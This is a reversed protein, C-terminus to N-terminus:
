TNFHIGTPSFYQLIGPAFFRRWYMSRLCNNYINKLSYGRRYAHHVLQPGVLQGGELGGEVHEVLVRVPGDGGLDPVTSYIVGLPAFDQRRKLIQVKLQGEKARTM